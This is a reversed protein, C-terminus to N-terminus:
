HFSINVVQEIQRLHAHSDEGKDLILEIWLLSYVENLGHEGVLGLCFFDPDNLSLPRVHWYLQHAILAPEFLYQDVQYLIRDLKRTIAKNFDFSLVIREPLQEFYGHSIRAGSYSYFVSLLQESAKSFQVARGLHIVLPDSKAQRDNLLYDLQIATLNMHVTLANPM